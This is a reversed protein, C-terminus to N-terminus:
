ENLTRNRSVQHIHTLYESQKLEAKLRLGSWDTEKATLQVALCHLPVGACYKLILHYNEAPDDSVAFEKVNDCHEGM